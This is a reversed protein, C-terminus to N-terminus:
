SPARAARGRPLRAKFQLMRFEDAIFADADLHPQQEVSPLPTLGSVGALTQLRPHPARPSAPTFTPRLPDLPGGACM